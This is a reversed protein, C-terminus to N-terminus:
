TNVGPTALSGNSPELMGLSHPSRLAAENAVYVKPSYSGARGSNRNGSKQAKRPVGLRLDTVYPSIM